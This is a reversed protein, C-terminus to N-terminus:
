SIKRIKLRCSRKKQTTSTTTSNNKAEDKMEVLMLSYYRQLYEACDECWYKDSEDWFAKMTANEAKKMPFNKSLQACENQFVSLADDYDEFSDQSVISEEWGDLLWWPEFEGYMKIVQYM